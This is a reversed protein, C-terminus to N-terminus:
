DTAVKENFLGIIYNAQSISLTEIKVKQWLIQTKFGIGDMVTKLSCLDIFKLQKLFRFRGQLPM